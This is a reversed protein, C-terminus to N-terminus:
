ISNNADARVAASAPTPGFGPQPIYTLRASTVADAILFQVNEGNASLAAQGSAPTGARAIVTAVGTVTGTLAEAAVLRLGARPTLAGVGTAAVVTIDVTIPEAELATYYVEAETIADAAFFAIDGAPSVQAQGSALTADEAVVDIVGVGGTGAINFGGQLLMAKAGAPLTLTNSAVTGRVYRTGGGIFDGVRVVQLATPIKNPNAENLADRLPRNILGAM